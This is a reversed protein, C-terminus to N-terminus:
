ALREGPLLHVGNLFDAASMRRKGEPQVDLLELSGSGCAVFLRGGQALLTGPVATEDNEADVVAAGSIKLIGQRFESWVGPWPAFGRVRNRLDVASLKWDARGDEKKLIPALTSQSHDQPIPTIEGRELSDLTRVLLPAGITALRRGLTTTDDDPATDITEKLLMEGTDLGADIKMTTVGTQTEGRVLAWNVPAAGRYKPLLSAHLNIIGLRPLDIIAQPILKGYGVVVIADAAISRLLDLIEPTNIKSPQHITLNLALAARKVPPQTLKQGRGSPRDPQTFVAAVEHTAALLELSPAAFEPTGM